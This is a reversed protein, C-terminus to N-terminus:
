KWAKISPIRTPGVDLATEQDTCSISESLFEMSRSCCTTFRIVKISSIKNGQNNRALLIGTSERKKHSIRHSANSDSNDSAAKSSALIKIQYESRKQNDNAEM